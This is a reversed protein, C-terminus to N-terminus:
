KVLRFYQESGTIANTYPSTSSPITTYTGTVLPSGQLVYTADSWTLIVDTGVQKIQLSPAPTVIDSRLSLYMRYGNTPTASGDSQSIVGQVSSAFIVYPPGTPSGPLPNGAPDSLINDPVLLTFGQNSLNTMFIPGGAVMLGNANTLTLFVNSVVVFRGENTKEMAPINTLTAFDFFAPTPLPNGTSLNTIIHSPNGNTPSMELLGNFQLLPATIRVLTGAAPVAPGARYFVDIGGTADQIFYSNAPSGTVLNGTTTVVGEVQFLTTGNTLVYSANQLTHLYAINTVVVPINTVTLTAVSSTAFGLTNSAISFFGSGSVSTPVFNTTFSTGAAGSIVNTTGASIIYWTFTMPLSGNASVNFTAPNGQGVTLSAPNASISPAILIPPTPTFSVSFDDVAMGHDLGADNVDLWRLFIEQGPLLIVGPLLINSFVQRNTSANGDLASAAVALVFPSSFSLSSVATWTNSVTPEPSTIAANDIRYYFALQQVTTNSGNRWQEGTYSITINTQADVASDNLLRVGYGITNPTGSSVSGLARESSANVGFSYLLGSNSAGNTSTYLLFTGGTQRSAYWGPLTSNDTWTAPAAGSTALTDFNQSYAGGSMLIQAPSSHQGLLLATLTFLSGFAARLYNSKNKM